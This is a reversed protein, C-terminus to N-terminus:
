ALPLVTVDDVEGIDGLREATWRLWERDASAYAAAYRFAARAVGTVGAASLALAPTKLNM